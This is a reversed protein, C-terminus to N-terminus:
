LHGTKVWKQMGLQHPVLHFYLLRAGPHSRGPNGQRSLIVRGDQNATTLAALFGEIHMLPSAPRPARDEGEEAPAAPAACLLSLLLTQSGPCCPAGQM